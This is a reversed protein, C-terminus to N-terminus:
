KWICLEFLFGYFNDDLTSMIQNNLAKIIFLSVPVVIEIRFWKFIMLLLIEYFDLNELIKGSRAFVQLIKCVKKISPFKGFDQLISNTIKTRITNPNLMFFNREKLIKKQFVMADCGKFINAHNKEEYFQPLLFALNKLQM